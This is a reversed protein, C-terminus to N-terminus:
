ENAAGEKWDALRELQFPMIGSLSIDESMRRLDNLMHYLGSAGYRSLTLKRDEEPKGVLEALLALRETLAYAMNYQKLLEESLENLYEAKTMPKGDPGCPKFATEKNM